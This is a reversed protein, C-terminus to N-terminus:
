RGARPAQLDSLSKVVAILEAPAIPKAIHTQFGAQLARMRDEPRALATLAAAPVSAGGPARRLRRAFEYGDHIPMGIDSLIVDPVEAAFAAMAEEASAATTVKAHRASLIRRVVELSDRDDDVVLVKIGSLEEKSTTESGPFAVAAEPRDQREPVSPAVPLSVSFRAGAGLGPSEARVTGGHLEVLQRVLALGIGLGGFQRTISSDAQRFRDFVFPLFDEAIGRGNDSVIIEAQAGIRAITVVVRGGSPTFKIGNALLNWIVQQLRRKDGTIGASKEPLVAELTVRKLDATPRIATIADRVVQGIELSELNLTLKGSTIRGLDLLDDIMQAQVRANREIVDIGEAVEANGGAADRLIQTWGVIANLPTRLEHSVTALFDDQMRNAHEAQARATRESALLQERESSIRVLDTIDRAIKSAGVIEGSHNRIPSITLSVPFHHGDKGVRITEFHEVREGLRLRGLIKPEETKRDQPVLMLVPQGVAEKATYGFIRQAGDNWSTIIGDLSKSIIADESSSVIAALLLGAQHGRKQDTIDRAVNSAGVIAGDSGRIPSVTISVEVLQGDKRMRTTEFHDVREGTRVRQLIAEEEAERGPPFLLTIPRGIAEEMSYGFIREASRNWSTITGRLDKSIIADDSSDIIAPLL